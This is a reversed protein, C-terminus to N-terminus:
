RDLEGAIINLSSLGSVLDSIMQGRCMRPFAQFAPERDWDAIGADIMANM